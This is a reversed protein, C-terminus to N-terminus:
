DSRRWFSSYHSNERDGRYESLSLAGLELGASARFIGVCFQADAINTLFILLTGSGSSPVSVIWEGVWHRKKNVTEPNIWKKGINGLAGIFCQM